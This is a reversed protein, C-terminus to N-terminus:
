MNNSFLPKDKKFNDKGWLLFFLLCYFVFPSFYNLSDNKILNLFIFISFVLLQYNKKNKILQYTFFCFLFSLPIVGIFLIYSLITSHPLLLSEPNNIVTEGYLQGFNLPGSGFLIESFTPNYRAFFIGWMESRNLLYSIFGLFSVFSTFIVSNEQNNVLILFSSFISDFQFISSKYIISESMFQYSQSFSQSIFAYLTFLSISFLLAYFMKLRYRKYFPTTRFFSYVTIVFILIIVTRNDSFYLGLSSSFLGLYQIKSFKNNQLLFFLLFMLCLGYYEGITESSPSLGRWSIKVLFEDFAFPNTQDIGYRQSGFIYYNFFNLVPFNSGLSGFVLLLFAVLSLNKTFILNSFSHKNLLYVKWLGKILLFSFIIWYLNANFEFVSSTFGRIKGPNFYFSGRSNYLWFLSLTLYSINFLRSGGSEYLSTLGYYLFIISFFVLNYGSFIGTFLFIFPIYNVISESRTIFIDVFNKVIFIFLLFVLFYSKLDNFEFIYFSKEYFRSEAYISYTLLYSILFVLLNTPQKKQNSDNKPNNKPIFSFLIIWILGQFLLNLFSNTGISIFFQTELGKQLVTVGSVRGFCKISSINDPRFYFHDQYISEHNNRIFQFLSVKCPNIEYFTVDEQSVKPIALNNGMENNLWPTVITFLLLVGLIIKSSKVEM